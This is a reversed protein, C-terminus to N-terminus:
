IAMYILAGTVIFLLFTFLVLLSDTIKLCYRKFSFFESTDCIKEATKSLEYKAQPENCGTSPRRNENTDSKSKATSNSQQETKVGHTQPSKELATSSNAAILIISLSIILCRRITRYSMRYSGFM